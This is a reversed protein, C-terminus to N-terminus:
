PKQRRRLLALGGLALLSMTAPEPVIQWQVDDFSYWEATSTNRVEVSVIEKGFDTLGFFMAGYDGPLTNPMSLVQQTGDSFHATLVGGFDGVDSFYSGFAHIPQSFTFVVSTSGLSGAAQTGSVAIGQPYGARIELPNTATILLDGLNLETYSGLGIGEFDEVDLAGVAGAFSAQAAKSNVMGAATTAAPDTGEYVVIAGSASLTTGLFMAVLAVYTAMERVMVKEKKTNRVNLAAGLCVNGSLTEPGPPRKVQPV